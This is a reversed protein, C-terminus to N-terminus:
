QGEGRERLIFLARERVSESRDRAFRRVLDDLHGLSRRYQVLGDAAVRRVTVAKDAAGQAILADVPVTRSLPREGYAVVRRSLGMSKDIWESKFGQPWLARGAILTKLALARVAPQVAKRSLDPLHQDMSEHRLAQQLVRGPSGDTAAMVRVALCRAVDARAFTEELISSDKDWRQWHRMRELLVFAAEAIIEPPTKPFVRAACAQAARRVPEVWDNLRYAICNFYFASQLPGDIRALARERLYGNGHFLYLYALDPTETLLEDETRIPRFSRLVSALLSREPTHRHYLAGIDAIERGARLYAEAPLGSLGSLVATLEPQRVRGARLEEGIRAISLQLAEPLVSRRRHTTVDEYDRM